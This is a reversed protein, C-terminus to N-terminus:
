TAGALASLNMPFEQPVEEADAAPKDNPLLVIGKPGPGPKRMPKAKVSTSNLTPESEKKKEPANINVELTQEPKLSVKQLPEQRWSGQNM